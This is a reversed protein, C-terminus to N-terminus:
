KTISQAAVLLDKMADAIQQCGNYSLLQIDVTKESQSSVEESMASLNSIHEVIGSNSKALEDCRKGLKNVSTFTNQLHTSITNFNTKAEEMVKEEEQMKDAASQTIKIMGEIQTILKSLVEEIQTTFQNTGESLKRIEDAVVAFGKGADGARAAEISANLALLNTQSSISRIGDTLMSINGTAEGLQKMNQALKQSQMVIDETTQSLNNMVKEGQTALTVTTSVDQISNQTLNQIQTINKQIEDTYALQQQISLATDLTSTSIQDVAEKATDMQVMLNTALDNTAAINSKLEKSTNQLFTIQEKQTQQHMQIAAEDADSFAKQKRNVMFWFGCYFFITYFVVLAETIDWSKLISVRLISILAIALCVSCLCFGIYKLDHYIIFLSCVVFIFGLMGVFSTFIYVATFTIGAWSCLFYRFWYAAPSIRLIIEYAIIGLVVILATCLVLGISGGQLYDIISCGLVGCEFVGVMRAIYKNNQIERDM